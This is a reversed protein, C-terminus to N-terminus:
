VERPIRGYRSLSDTVAGVILDREPLPVIPYNPLVLGTPPSNSIQGAIGHSILDQPGPLPRYCFTLLGGLREPQSTM